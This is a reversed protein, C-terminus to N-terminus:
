QFAEPTFVAAVSFQIEPLNRGKNINTLSIDTYRPSNRLQYILTALGAESLSVGSLTLTTRTYSLQSISVDVPTIGALETLLINFPIQDKTVLEITTLRTQLSKFKTELSSASAVIAKKQEISEHLDTLDRDLKFRMLFAIIVILETFVVIYRGLSLAWRLFKIWKTKEFETAGPLLNIHIPHFTISHAPM